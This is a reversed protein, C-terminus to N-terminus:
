PTAATRTDALSATIQRFRRAAAVFPPEADLPPLNALFAKGDDGNPDLAVWIYPRRHSQRMVWEYPAQRWPLIKWTMNDLVIDGRDTAVMLVAHGRGNWQRVVAVSLASLPWGRRALLRQKLLAFDECDGGREADPYAWYERRGHASFDDREPISENVFDNVDNLEQWREPSLHMPAPHDSGGMCDTPNRLCFAIYGPPPMVQRGVPLWAGSEAPPERRATHPTDGPMHSTTGTVLATPAATHFAFGILALIAGLRAARAHPRNPRQAM